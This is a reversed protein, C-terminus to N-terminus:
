NDQKNIINKYNIKCLLIIIIICVNFALILAVVTVKEQMPRRLALPTPEQTFPDYYRQPKKSPPIRTTVEAGETDDDSRLRRRIDPM